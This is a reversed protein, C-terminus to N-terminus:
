LPIIMARFDFRFAARRGARDERELGTRLAGFLAFGRAAIFGARRAFGRALGRRGAGCAADDECRLACGLIFVISLSRRASLSALIM